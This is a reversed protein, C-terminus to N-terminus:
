WSRFLEILSIHNYFCSGRYTYKAYYTYYFILFCVCLGGTIIKRYRGTERGYKLIIPISLCHFIDFYNAMRGFMNAGGFSALIMFCSSIISLNICLFYFKNKTRLLSKRNLFAFIPVILYFALRFINVGQGGLMGADYEDGISSAIDILVVVFESFFIGAVFTAILALVAKRNWVGDTLFFAAFYLIVYPHILIAFLILIAAEIRKHRLIMPITWIVMATAITQKMAGMTFAYVLFTIFLYCSLSFNVAYRDLFFLFSSVVFCSTLFIFTSPSKSIYTKVLIMYIHFLPNSGISWDLYRINNLGIPIDNEFNNMYTATDNMFTRLGSFCVMVILLAFFFVKSARDSIRKHYIVGSKTISTKKFSGAEYIWSFLTCFGLMFFVEQM